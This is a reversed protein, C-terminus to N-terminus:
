QNGSMELAKGIMGGIDSFLHNVEDFALDNPVGFVIAFLQQKKYIRATLGLLRHPKGWKNTEAVAVALDPIGEDDYGEERIRDILDVTMRHASSVPSMLGASLGFAM